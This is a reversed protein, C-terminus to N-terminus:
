GPFEPAPRREGAAQGVRIRTRLYQHHDAADGGGAREVTFRGAAWLSGAVPQDRENSWATVGYRTADKSISSTDALKFIHKFKGYSLEDKWTNITINKLLQRQQDNYREFWNVQPDTEIQVRWDLRKDDLLINRFDLNDAQKVQAYLLCWLETRPPDATVNKGNFVAVAYPASVSLKDPDRNVSCTLAPAPHQIGTARLQRGFRGQATSWVMQQTDKHRYHGVRLEYTFFGFMESADAYLGPPLPLLYHRDSDTAKQMPQMANLGALDNTAGPPIVRIFEPDIPLSPEPQAILLDPENNSILQDPTYMLVRGFYADDPDQVPDKFEIWLYRQRTQTASYRANRAYPSLAIGASVIQPVQAPPMTIPLTFALETVGDNQAGYGPKFVTEITYHVEITDPFRPETPDAAQMLPNKPEVADIFILRTSDRQPNQLAEFSATHRFEVTGVESTVAETAPNDHTFWMKRTIVFSRDDLADWTWDRDLDLIICCLWHNGLDGKSSFTLSSNEPSLTHRIRASCGFQVRQGQSATLTMDVSEVGIQKALRQVMDPMKDMQQGILLTLLKGNYVDPPDPQLYIGQLQEAPAAHVFLNQEASSPQYLRTQVIHGFRVDLEHNADNLLGYYDSNTPKDECVARLTLRITRGSPVYIEALKDIDDPLNLDNKLDLEDGVHLVHCECYLIPLNLVANYDGENNVAPFARNTTYLHVYNEQGSVSLLNDMRLTQVEVTVEVRDVDPDSIGFAEVGQMAQSAAKLLSVADAYKGTYVAAPYGLLPRQLNLQNITTISDTNVALNDIRVQNPAVYRKFQCRAINSPTDNLPTITPAIAPGGGSLDQLRIRFEYKQGYLLQTKIKGPNYLQNLQNQAPGTVGTGTGGSEPDPKVNPNNTQYIDSAQQDPLVMNHGNWSAFYM